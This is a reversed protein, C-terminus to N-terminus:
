AIAPAFLLCFALLFSIFITNTHIKKKWKKCLFFYINARRDLSIIRLRLFEGIKGHLGFFIHKRILINCCFAASQFTWQWEADYFYIASCGYGYKEIYVPSLVLLCFMSVIRIKGTLHLLLFIARMLSYEFTLPILRMNSSRRNNTRENFFFHRWRSWVTAENGCARYFIRIIISQM